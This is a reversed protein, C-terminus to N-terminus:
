RRCPPRYRCGHRASPWSRFRGPLTNKGAFPPPTIHRRASIHTHRGLGLVGPAGQAAQHLLQSGMLGLQDHHGQANGDAGAAAGKAGIQELVGDVYVDLGQALLEAFGACHGIQAPKDPEQAHHQHDVQDACEAGEKVAPQHHQGGRADEVLEALLHKVMHLIQGDPIEILMGVAFDHAAIGVIGVGQPLKEGAREGLDNGREQGDAEGQEEQQPEVAPQRQQQHHEHRQHRQQGLVQALLCAGIEHGLLLGHARQVSVNLFGNLALPHHLHEAMLFLGLLGKVPQIFVDTLGAGPGVGEGAHHAGDHVVQAMAIIHEDRQQAGDQNNHALGVHARQHGEQGHDALEGLRDGIHGLLKVGDHLGQGPRLPHKLQHVLGGLLIVAIHGQDVGVLVRLPVDGFGFGAGPQPGPLMGMPVAGGGIGLQLAIHDKLVHRKAIHGVFDHEVIDGKVGLRPLLDGKYAGGARALGGDGVQNVAEIVDLAALDAIVADVDFLDALIIQAAGQGHHQLVRM